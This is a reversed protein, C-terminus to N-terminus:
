QKIDKLEEKVFKALRNLLISETEHALNNLKFFPERITRIVYQIIALNTSTYQNIESDFNSSQKYSINRYHRRLRSLMGFLLDTYSIVNLCQRTFSVQVENLSILDDHTLNITIDEKSPTYKNLEILTSDSLDLLSVIENKDIRNYTDNDPITSIFQYGRPLKPGKYTIINGKREKSLEPFVPDFSIDIYSKDGFKYKIINNVNNTVTSNRTYINFLTSYLGITEVIDFGKDPLTFYDVEKSPITISFTDKESNNLIFRIATTIATSKKSNADNREKLWKFFRLLLEYIIDLLSVIALYVKDIVKTFTDQKNIPQKKVGLSSFISELTVNILLKENESISELSLNDSYLEKIKILTNFSEISTELANFAGNLNKVLDNNYDVIDEDPYNTNIDKIEYGYIISSM